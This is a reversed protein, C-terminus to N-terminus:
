TLNTKSLFAADVSILLSYGLHMLEVQMKKRGEVKIIRGRLGMLNGASIEVPDGETFQGPMAEIELGEELTIRKLIDIEEQPVALLDQAFKVFGAVNETELIPLYQNKVIQAFVYCNILPRETIRTSRAYRRMIKQLPLYCVIGKKALMRQVWKESKSRTRVAFWRPETEHLQNIYPKSM